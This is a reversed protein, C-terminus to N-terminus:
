IIMLKMRVLIQKARVKMNSPKSKVVFRVSDATSLLKLTEKSFRKNTINGYLWRVSYDILYITTADLEKLHNLMQKNMYIFDRYSKEANFGALGDTLFSYFYVVDNYARIKKANRVTKAFFLMDEWKKVGYDFEFKNSILFERRFLKNWPGESCEISIYTLVEERGLLKGKPYITNKTHVRGDKEVISFNFIAIDVEDLVAKDLNDFYNDPVYDDSDVFSVYRGQAKSLGINRANAVGKNEKLDLLIVRNDKITKIVSVTCDPSCDNIVIVEFDQRNSSLISNLCNLITNEANYAPIIVSYEM